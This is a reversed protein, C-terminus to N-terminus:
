MSQLRMACARPRSSCICATWDRVVFFVVVLAHRPRQLSDIGNALSEDLTDRTEDTRVAAEHEREGPAVVGLSVEPAQKM